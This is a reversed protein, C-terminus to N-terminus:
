AKYFQVIIITQSVRPEAAAPPSSIKKEDSISKKLIAFPEQDHVQFWHLSGPIINIVHIGKNRAMEIIDYDRHISLNNSIFFRDLSSRTATRWNIFREMM